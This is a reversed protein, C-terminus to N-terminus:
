APRRPVSSAVTRPRRRSREERPVEGRLAGPMVGPQRQAPEERPAPNGPRVGVEEGFSDRNCAALRPLLDFVDSFRGALGPVFGVSGVALRPAERTQRFREAIVDGLM